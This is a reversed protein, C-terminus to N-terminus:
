RRVAQMSLDRARGEFITKKKNDNFLRTKFQGARRSTPCPGM